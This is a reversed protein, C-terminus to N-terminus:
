PGEGPLFEFEWDIIKWTAGEKHFYFTYHLGNHPEAIGEGNTGTHRFRAWVHLDAVVKADLGNVEISAVKFDTLGWAEVTTNDGDFTQWGRKINTRVRDLASMQRLQEARAQAAAQAANYEQLTIGKESLGAELTAQQRAADQGTPQRGAPLSGVSIPPVDSYVDALQSDVQAFGSRNANVTADMQLTYAKQALTALENSEVPSIPQGLSVGIVSPVAVIILVVVSLTAIRSKM